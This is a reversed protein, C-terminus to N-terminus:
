YGPTFLTLTACESPARKKSSPPIWVQKVWTAEKAWSESLTKDGMIDQALEALRRLSYHLCCNVELNHDKLIHRGWDASLTVKLLGTEDIKNLAYEVGKKVKDWKERIWDKSKESGDSHYFYAEYM